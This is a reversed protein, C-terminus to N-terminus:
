FHTEVFAITPKLLRLEHESDLYEQFYVDGYKLRTTAVSDQFYKIAGNTDGNLLHRMGVYYCAESLQADKVYMPWASNTASELFTRETIMNALFPEIEYIIEKLKDPKYGSSELKKILENTVASNEGMQIRLLSIRPEIELANTQLRLATELNTLAAEFQYLRYYTMGLGAYSQFVNPNAKIAEKFDAIAGHYDGAIRKIQGRSQYFVANEPEINIAEDLSVIAKSYDKRGALCTGLNNYAWGYDPKMETAKTFDQIAGNVDDLSEKINGRFYYAEANSPNIQIVMSYDTLANTKNGLQENSTARLSYIEADTSDLDIAKDYDALAMDYQKLTARVKGRIIYFTPSKPFKAIGRTCERIAGEYDGTQAEKYAVDCMLQGDNNGDAQLNFISSFGFALLFAIFSLSQVRFQSECTLMKM